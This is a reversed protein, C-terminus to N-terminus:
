DELAYDDPIIPDDMPVIAPAEPCISDQGGSSSWSNESWRRSGSGQM